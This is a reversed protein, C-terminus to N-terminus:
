RRINQGNLIVEQLGMMEREEEPTMHDYGLLHLFGHLALFAMERTLAHGFKKAQLEAQEVSIFIDGVVKKINLSESDSPFTLVDTANNKGRFDNNLATIRANDIFIFQCAIQCDELAEHRIAAGIVTQIITEYETTDIKTENFFQLNHKM